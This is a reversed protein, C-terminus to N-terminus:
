AGQLMPRLSLYLEKVVQANTMEPATINISGVHLGGGVAAGQNGGGSQQPGATPLPQIGGRSGRGVGLGKLPVVAEDGDEGIVALTPKTVIGGTALGIAGLAEGVVGSGPILGKIAKVIAGPASVIGNILAKIINKGLNFMGTVLSALAGLVKQPLSVFFGVINRLAHGIFLGTDWAAKGLGIIAAVVVHIVAETTSRIGHWNKEWAIDLNAAERGLWQVGEVFGRWLPALARAVTKLAEILVLLAPTLRQGITVLIANLKAKAIDTQGALTHGFAEATGGIKEKLAQLVQSTAMQDKKLKQEAESLKTHAAALKTQAAEVAKSTGAAATQAAAVGRAAKAVAEHDRSLKVETASLAREAADVAHHATVNEKSSALALKQKAVLNEHAKAVAGLAKENNKNATAEAETISKHAEQLAMEKKQAEMGKDASELAAKKARLQVLAAENAATKTAELVKEEGEITKIAAENGEKAREQELSTLNKKAGEIGKAGQEATERAAAEAAKLAASAEKIALKQKNAAETVGNQATKLAEQAATLSGSDTSLTEQAHKLTEEAASVKELARAHEEAGKQEAKVLNEEAAKLGLKAKAVAETAKVQASLKLSGIDLQIGLQMLPRLSGANVKALTESAQALSINKYRALDAAIGMEGMAKAPDKTSVTLTGLASATETTTFGLNTLGKEQKLIAPEFQAFSHHTNEVAVKLRTQAVDFADAAKVAAVGIGAALLLGAGAAMHAINRLASGFNKTSKEGEHMAYGMDRVRSGFPTGFTAMLNGMGTLSNGMRKSFGDTKTGIDKQAADSIRVAKQYPTESSLAKDIADQSLVASAAMGEFNKGVAATSAVTSAGLNEVNKGIMGTSSTVSSATTALQTKLETLKATAATSNVVVSIVVPPILEGAM